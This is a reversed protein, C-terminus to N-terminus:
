LMRRRVVPCGPRHLVRHEESLAGDVHSLMHHVAAAVTKRLPDALDALRYHIWVGDRRTEVLGADRLYALHRSVKPQSVNLSEHIHCVCVEGNLLLGLIRLRIADGLAKFFGELDNLQKGM